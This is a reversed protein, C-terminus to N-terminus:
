KTMFDDIKKSLSKHSMFGYTYVFNWLKKVSYNDLVLIQFYFNDHEDKLYDVNPGKQYNKPM